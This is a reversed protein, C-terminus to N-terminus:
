AATMGGPAPTPAGDFGRNSGMPADSGPSQAVKESNAAGQGGQQRPDSSPAPPAAPRQNMMAISPLGSVVAKTLDVRDDLRRLTERTLWDPGIGPLQMVIPLMKTWNAIEVAQNPRGMSGAEVELWVESMLEENSMELWVAGPGAIRAASEASLERILIQSSDRAVATLLADLDDISAADTANTSSAAIASQTATSNDTAGYNAEAAGGILQIDTFVENTDYLNPDVGPVEITRLVKNLDVTPDTATEIVDFPNAEMLRKKTEEDLVGKPVSWRPRAARRHERKGQRSRNFEQQQDILLTVDSPPFVLNENEVDNFTLAYVPWFSEVLVEPEAPPRLFDHYGEAVVYVLGSVKDFHEWVRVLSEDTSREDSTIDQDDVVENASTDRGAQDVFRTGIDVGFVEKIRAPTYDEEITIHRCGLFGDLKRCQKDPIVCTSLPFSFVLGERLVIEPENLLSEISLKLEAMEADTPGIEEEAIDVAIRKLHDLRARSDALQSVVDPRPGTKRQFGLRVYGVGTTTTRRVLQKMSKKFDIPTQERMFHAFIVELTRGFKELQQRRAYGEQFDQLLAQAEAVGPPLTPAPREAPAGTVPDFMTPTAAIQMAQAQMLVTAQQITQVALKLSEPNEDWVKFDMTERRRAIVRPNKAYLAATKMRIHRGIINATYNKADRWLKDAGYTAFDMDRRMRDFVPKFHHRDRKITAIVREVLKRTSEEVPADDKASASVGVLSEDEPTSELTADDNMM